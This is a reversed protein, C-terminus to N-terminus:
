RSAFLFAECDYGDKTHDANMHPSKVYVMHCNPKLGTGYSSNVCAGWPVNGRDPFTDFDTVAHYSGDIKLGSLRGCQAACHAKSFICHQLKPHELFVIATLVCVVAITGDDYVLNGQYKATPKMKPIKRKAFIGLGRVTNTHKRYVDSRLVIVVFFFPFFLLFIVIVIEM